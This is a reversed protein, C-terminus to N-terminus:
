DYAGRWDLMRIRILDILMKFSHLLPNIKSEERNSWRVPVEKITYGLKKAIYLVEADFAFGSLVQLGFVKKAADKKFGKFGCQTDKIGKVVLLRVLFNFVRGMTKRHWPQPIDIDAGELTRSGIVIDYGDQLFRFLKEIEHIPTSLDADMFIIYGGIAELCGQRVSYGKGKNVKGEIVRIKHNEKAKKKAVEASNDKSGYCVVMVEYSFNLRELHTTIVNLTNKIVKEENYVPIIVSLLTNM